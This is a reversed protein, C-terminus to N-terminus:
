KFIGLFVWVNFQTSPLERSVYLFFGNLLYEPILSILFLRLFGRLLSAQTYSSRLLYCLIERWFNSHSLKAQSIHQFMLESSNSLPPSTSIYNSSVRFNLPQFIGPFLVDTFIHHPSFKNFCELFYFMLSISSPVHNFSVMSNERLPSETQPHGQSIGLHVM